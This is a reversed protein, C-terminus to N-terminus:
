ALKRWISSIMFLGVVSLALSSVRLPRDGSAVLMSIAIWVLAAIAGSRRRHNLAWAIALSCMGSGLLVLPALPHDILVRQLTANRAAFPTLEFGAIILAICGTAQFYWVVATLRFPFDLSNTSETSRLETLM